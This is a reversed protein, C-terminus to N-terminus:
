VLSVSYKWNQFQFLSIYREVLEIRREMEKSSILKACTDPKWMQLKRPHRLFIVLFDHKMQCEVTVAFIQCHPTLYYSNYNM